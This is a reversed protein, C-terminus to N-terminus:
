LTGWVEVGKTHATLGFRRNRRSTGFSVPVFLDDAFLYLIAERSLRLLHLVRLAFNYAIAREADNKLGLKSGAVLVCCYLANELILSKLHAMRIM